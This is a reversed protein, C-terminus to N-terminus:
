RKKFRVSSIVEKLDNTWLDGESERYSITITHLCDNNQIRYTVGMTPSDGNVSRLESTVLSDAGNLNVIRLGHFSLLRTDIGKATLETCTRQLEIKYDDGLEKLEADSLTIPEDLKSFKGIEEKVTEITFRCYRKLAEPDLENLGKQQCVVRNPMTVIELRELLYNEELRKYTGKQIELTPPIRFTCIEPISVTPWQKEEDKAYVVGVLLLSALTLGFFLKYM